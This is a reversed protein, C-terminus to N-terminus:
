TKKTGIYISAIGGTLKIQRLNEFGVSSMKALFEEGEPFALVSEPLYTYASSDKSLLNGITPMIFKFYFGFLHKIPFAKPKSFELIVTIGNPNLVRQMERLGKDLNEFNRVGFGVTYADFSNDDFPLNESDGQQLSIRDVYGRSKIKEIGVDLMGQSLDVGTVKADLGMRIAEIAFDGTGTAMDIISKPDHKRLLRICRKRWLVDIGLSFFHNLFDYKHAISDFMREVQQKKAENESETYPTIKTGM